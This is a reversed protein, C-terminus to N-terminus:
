IVELVEYEGVKKLFEVVEQRTPLNQGAGLKTVSLAGVINALRAILRPDLGKIIGFLLAANFADGAGTTDVVPVEVGKEYYLEGSASLVCGEEGLKLAVIQPGMGHLIDIANRINNVGTIAYAEYSNLTLVSTRGLIKYLIERNISSVLPGPDFVVIRDLRTAIDLYRLVAEGESRALTEVGFSYGSVYISKALEIYEERVDEPTLLAVSRTLLGIFSKGGRANVLVLVQKTLGEKVGIFSTEVGETKLVSLLTKGVSDTGVVDVVGSRLGLRSAMIVFNASGGALVNLDQAIQVDESRPFHDLKIVIDAVLDGIALVDLM